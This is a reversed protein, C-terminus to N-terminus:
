AGNEQEPIRFRFLTGRTGTDFSLAGHHQEVIRKCVALGLGTGDGKTTFFPKFLSAHINAPIGPGDDEIEAEIGRDIRVRVRVEARAADVANEILNMFVQILRTRSCSQTETHPPLDPVIRIKRPEWKYRLLRVAEEVVERVSCPLFSIEGGERGLQRIERAIERCKAADRYIDEAIPDSGRLAEANLLINALPNNLDHAVTNAILGVEALRETRRLALLRANTRAEISDMMRNFSRALQAAERPGTEAARVDMRGAGIEESQHALHELPRTIGRAIPVILAAAVGICFITGALVLITAIRATRRSETELERSRHLLATTMATMGDSIDESPRHVDRNWDGDSSLIRLGDARITGLRKRTRAFTEASHCSVTSCSELRRDVDDMGDRFKEAPPRDGERIWAPDASRHLTLNLEQTRELDTGIRELEAAHGSLRSVSVYAISGLILAEALAASLVVLTIKGRISM